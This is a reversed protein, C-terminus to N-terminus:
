KNKKEAEQLSIDRGSKLYIGQYESAIQLADERVRKINEMVTKIREESRTIFVKASTGNEHDHITKFRKSHNQVKEAICLVSPL